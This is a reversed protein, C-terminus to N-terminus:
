VTLCMCLFKALFWPLNLNFELSVCCMKHLTLFCLHHLAVNILIDPRAQNLWTFLHSIRTNVTQPPKCRPFQSSSPTTPRWLCLNIFSHQESTTMLQRIISPLYYFYYFHESLVGRLFNNGVILHIVSPCSPDYSLQVRLFHSTLLQISHSTM